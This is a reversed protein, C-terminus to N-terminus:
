KKILETKMDYLVGNILSTRDSYDTIEYYSNLYNLYVNIMKQLDSTDLTERYLYPKLKYFAESIQKKTYLELDLHLGLAQGIQFAIVKLASVGNFKKNLKSFNDKYEKTDLEKQKEDFIVENYEEIYEEKPHEEDYIKLLRDM